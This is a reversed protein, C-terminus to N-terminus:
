VRARKLRLSNMVVSVSSLAMAGGALMPDLLFGWVPYLAGAAIPIGILNYIFAWFLNQRVTRVTARSLRIARPIHQLDSHMLTIKAVDMAIDTGKGMAIGVDAQALAQSDNIGDGVMGVVKGQRQLEQVFDAKDSPMVEARYEAIGAQRAVAAATQANDGTLMYVAIGIERLEKIAQASGEKITDALALIAKTEGGAAFYIVTRAEDKLTAAKGELAPSPQVGHQELLRHNGLLYATGNRTATVGLGTVSEFSDLAIVPVDRAQLHRSVAEALPHESQSEIALIVAELEEQGTVGEAWLVETVEPQGKTITGTKDLVIANIKHATELSQADKILIGNEAGRGVGVMIATPTALGLACPCAIILVTILALLAHTLADASGLVLWAVFSLLAIAIVVPVFIGAIKDTLKQIPAKSGQAEQVLRIIQALLTESGVKEALVQLSGKQNITGTFVQDGPQKLVPVPEGSIMSEDLYSNGTQVRGDVPIKEGPRILLLDNVVVQGIPIEQELGERLVKVLKPQLGMLNKIASSTRSKAREELFRGLLIFAIIVAAAEFYVHPVLGRSALFQPYVTNFASFIFAIGTSLAVLTDMNAQGHRLQRAANVFFGRGFWFVVPATLVLMIWNAYPQHHLFMGYVFVPLSLLAAWLTRKKLRLYADEKQADLEEQRSELETILLDYGVSQILKRLEPLKTDPTFEVLATNNAFNVNVEVVGPHSKLMSEVSAACGACTMGTVPFSQKVNQQVSAPLITEM